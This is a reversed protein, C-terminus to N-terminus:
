VLINAKEMEQYEKSERECEFTEVRLRCCAEFFLPWLRKVNKGIQLILFVTKESAYLDIVV